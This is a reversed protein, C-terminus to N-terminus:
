VICLACHQINPNQKPGIKQGNKFNPACNCPVITSNSLTVPMVKAAEVSSCGGEGMIRACMYTTDPNPGRFGPAVSGMLSIPELTAKYVDTWGFRWM